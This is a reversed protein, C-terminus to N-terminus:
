EDEIYVHVHEGDDLDLQNTEDDLSQMCLAEDSQTSDAHLGSLEALGTVTVPGSASSEVKEEASGAVPPDASVARGEGGGGSAGGESAPQSSPDVVVRTRKRAPAAVKAGKTEVKPADGGGAALGARLPVNNASKNLATSRCVCVVGCTLFCIRSM